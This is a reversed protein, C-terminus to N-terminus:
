VGNVQSSVKGLCNCRRVLHGRDLCDVLGVELVRTSRCQTVARCEVVDRGEGGYVCRCGNDPVVSRM